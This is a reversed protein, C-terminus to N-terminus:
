PGPPFPPVPATPLDAPHPGQGPLGQPTGTRPPLPAGPAPPPTQQAQKRRALVLVVGMIIILIIVASGIGIVLLLLGTDLGSDEGPDEPTTGPEKVILTFSQNVVNGASDKVSVVVEYTGTETFSTEFVGSPTWEPTGSGYYDISYSQIGSDDSSGTLDVKLEDDLYLEGNVPGKVDLYILPMTSDKKVQVTRPEMQNGGLDEAWYVFTNMGDPILVANKYLGPTESGWRYYIKMASSRDDEGKPELVISARSGQFWGNTMEETFVHEVFPVRKDVKVLFFLMYAQNGAKDKGRVRIENEGEPIEVPSSYPVPAGDNITYNIEMSQESGQVNLIPPINLWRSSNEDTYEFGDFWATINPQTTDVQFRLRVEEADNGARDTCTIRLTNEGDPIGVPAHYPQMDGSGLAYYIAVADYSTLTVQPTTTYWGNEGNPELPYITYNLTPAMTDVKFSRSRVIEENGAQDVAKWYLVNEGEPALFAGEYRKFDGNGWKHFLLSEPHSTTLTILPASTYWNEEPLNPQIDIASSPIGTDVKFELIHKEEINQHRDYSWYTLTHVGEPMYFPETYDSGAATDIQYKIFSGSETNLTVKPSTIYWEDVGDPTRPSTIITSLPPDLDLVDLDYAVNSLGTSSLILQFSSYQQGWGQFEHSISRSGGFDLFTVNRNSSTEPYFAVIPNGSSFTMKLRFTDVGSPPSSFRLTTISFGNIDRNAQVPIGSHSATISSKLTGYDYSQTPYVYEGNGVDASNLRTAVMWKQFSDTFDDQSGIASLAQSVGTTGHNTNRVLARTYNKGGYQHSMYIQYMFSIGYYATTGDQYFTQDTIVLGYYPRYELYAYVHGATASSIGYVLYAAYDACGEDVWLNEYQDYQRHVYHQFEHATIVGAWSLDARDVHFEDTGPSYYGGVGSSGDIQHVYFTAQNVRDMPDFWDKVRPYSFNVFDAVYRDLLQEENSSLTGGGGSSVDVYVTLIDDAYYEDWTARTPASSATSTGQQAPPYVAGEPMPEPTQIFPSGPYPLQPRYGLEELGSFDLDSLTKVSEEARISGGDSTWPVGLLSAAVLLLLIASPALSRGPGQSSKPHM